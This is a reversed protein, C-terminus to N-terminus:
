CNPIDLLFSIIETRLYNMINYPLTLNKEQIGGVPFIKSCMCGTGFIHVEKNLIIFLVTNILHAYMICLLIVM